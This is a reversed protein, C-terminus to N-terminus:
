AGASPQRVDIEVTVEDVVKLAGFLTSYPTIGWDSQKVVAVASLAGGAGVAVDFALPRTVGLLTLDGEVSLGGGDAAPQVQTSRFTIPQRKLIEDDITQSIDAKESDSLPKMGGTGEIVRLSGGDVDLSLSSGAADEGVVLTAGWSTVHILLDHGAKAAAGTRGTRLSLTGHDPGLSHMGAPTGTEGPADPLGLAAQWTRPLDRRWPGPKPGSGQRQAPSSDFFQSM